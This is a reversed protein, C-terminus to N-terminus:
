LDPFAAIRISRHTQKISLRSHLWGVQTKILPPEWPMSLHGHRHVQGDYEIPEIVAAAQVSVKVHFCHSNTEKEKRNGQYQM